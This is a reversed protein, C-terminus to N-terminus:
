ASTLFKEELETVLSHRRIFRLWNRQAAKQRAEEDHLFPCPQLAECYEYGLEQEEPEARRSVIPIAGCMIGELFRYTWPFDGDPALAFRSSMMKDYYGYDYMGTTKRVSRGGFNIEFEADTKNAFSMLWSRKRGPNLVGSFFYSTNKSDTNWVGCSCYAILSRPFIIGVSCGNLIIRAAEHEADYRRGISWCEEDMAQEFHVQQLLNQTPTGNVARFRQCSELSSGFPPLPKGCSSTTMSANFCTSVLPIKSISKTAEVVSDLPYGLLDSYTTEASLTAIQQERVRVDMFSAFFMMDSVFVLTVVFLAVLGHHKALLM